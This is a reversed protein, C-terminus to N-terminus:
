EEPFTFRESEADYTVIGAAAMASLWERVYREQLGAKAATEAISLPGAGALAKFLGVRDGVYIMGSLSAGTVYGMLQNIFQERKAKDMFNEEETRVAEAVSVASLCGPPPTRSRGPEEMPWTGRPKEWVRDIVYLVLM